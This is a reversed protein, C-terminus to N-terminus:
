PTGAGCISVDAWSMVIADSATTKLVNITLLRGATSFDKTTTNVSTNSLTGFISKNNTMWEQAAANAQNRMETVLNLTAGLSIVDLSFGNAMAGVSGVKVSITKSTATNPFTFFASVRVTDNTGLKPMTVTMLANDLLDTPATVDARSSAISQCHPAWAWASGTWILEANNYDTAFGKQGQYLGTSARINAATDVSVAAIKNIVALAPMATFLLAALTLLATLFRKM